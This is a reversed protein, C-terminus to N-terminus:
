SKIFSRSSVNSETHVSIFYLGDVLESVPIIMQAGIPSSLNIIKQGMSNHIAMERVDNYEPIYVNLRDTTPNPGITWSSELATDETDVFEGINFKFESIGACTASEDWTSIVSVLMYQMNANQLSVSKSGTYKWSGPAKDLTIPGVTTWNTQDISYDILIEKAGQGTKGWVNHNWYQITDIPYVEGFDYLVWHLDGREPIPGVSTSCSLWGQNKFTSHGDDFCQSSLTQMGLLIFFSVQITKIYNNMLKIKTTKAWPILQIIM